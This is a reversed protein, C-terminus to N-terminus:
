SIQSQRFNKSLTQISSQCSKLELSEYGQHILDTYPLHFLGRTVQKVIDESSLTPSCYLANYTGPGEIKVKSLTIDHNIPPLHFRIAFAPQYAGYFLYPYDSMIILRDQVSSAKETALLVAFICHM